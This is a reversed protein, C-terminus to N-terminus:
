NVVAQGITGPKKAPHIAFQGSVIDALVSVAEGTYPDKQVRKEWALQKEKESLRKGPKDADDGSMTGHGALGTNEALKKAEARERRMEGIDLAQMTHETKEKALDAETTIEHFKESGAM